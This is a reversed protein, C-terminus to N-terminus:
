RWDVEFAPIPVHCGIDDIDEGEPRCEHIIFSGAEVDEPLLDYGSWHDKAYGIGAGGLIVVHEWLHGENIADRNLDYFKYNEKLQMRMKERDIVM